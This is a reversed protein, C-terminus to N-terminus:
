AKVEGEYLTSDSFSESSDTRVAEVSFGAEGAVVSDVKPLEIVEVKARTTRNEQEYVRRFQENDESLKAIQQNLQGIRENNITNTSQYGAIQSKFDEIDLLHAAQSNMADLQSATLSELLFRADLPVIALNADYNKWIGALRQEPTLEVTKGMSKAVAKAAAEATKSASMDAGNLFPVPDARGTGVMFARM